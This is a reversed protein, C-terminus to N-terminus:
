PSKSFYPNPPARRHYDHDAALLSCAKPVVPLGAKSVQGLHIALHIGQKLKIRTEFIELLGKRTYEDQQM